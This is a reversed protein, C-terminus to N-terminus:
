VMSTPCPVLGRGRELKILDVGIVEANEDEAQGEGGLRGDGGHLFGWGHIRLKVDGARWAVVFGGWRDPM